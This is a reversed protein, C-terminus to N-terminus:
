TTDKDNQKPELISLVQGFDFGDTNQTNQELKRELYAVRNRLAEIEKAMKTLVIGIRKDLSQSEEDSKSTTEQKQETANDLLQEARPVPVSTGNTEVSSVAVPNGLEEKVIENSFGLQQSQQDTSSLQLHDLPLDQSGDEIQDQKPQEQREVGKEQLLAAVQSRFDPDLSFIYPPKHRNETGPKVRRHVM